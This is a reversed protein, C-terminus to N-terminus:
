INKKIKWGSSAPIINCNEDYETSGFWLCDLLISVASM